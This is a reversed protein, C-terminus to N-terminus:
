TKIWEKPSLIKFWGSCRGKRNRWIAYTNHRRTAVAFCINTISFNEM